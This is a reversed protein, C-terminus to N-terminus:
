SLRPQGAPGRPDEEIFKLGITPWLPEEADFLRVLFNSLM